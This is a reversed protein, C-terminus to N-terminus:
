VFFPHQQIFGAQMAVYGNGNIRFAKHRNVVFDITFRLSKGYMKFETFLFNAESLFEIKKLAIELVATSPSIPGERM